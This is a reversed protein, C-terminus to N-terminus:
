KKLLDIRRMNLEYNFFFFNLFITKGSFSHITGYVCLVISNCKEINEM